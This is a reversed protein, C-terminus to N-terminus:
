AQQQRIVAPSEGDTSSNLQHGMFTENRVKDYLSLYNEIMSPGCFRTANLMSAERMSPALKLSREVLAAASEPDDPDVYIAANGGVEDMPSRGSTVVPCGCAQAEVIPWGFGEQLSPFLMMTATSYLARLDENSVGTLEFTADDMGHEVVFRRMEATWPKGVMVLQSERASAVERLLSFVKLVGLRNKYWQNGGVHLIFSRSPDILLGRVRCEAEHTDMRSYPYNLANYALSVRGEPIKVLRLLDRRTAESVCVIHQAESLGRLILRQLQQGTWGTRNQPIEGLASRIALLDHCTIVHPISKMYKLYVSNAHDCIHVVDAWGLASRLLYPFLGFKDGYGLWKGIGRGSPRLRGLFASPRFIRVEHGAEVIGQSMLAAFRQMSEQEDHLYNALLLVKL